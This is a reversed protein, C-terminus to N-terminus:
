PRYRFSLANNNKGDGMVDVSIMLSGNRLTATGWGEGDDRVLDIEDGDLEYMGESALTTSTVEGDATIAVDIALHYRGDTGLVLEGGTVKVILQEYFHPQRADFYPGHYVEKPIAKGDVQMLAYLGNPSPDRPGTSSDGGACATTVAVVVLALWALRFRTGARLTDTM